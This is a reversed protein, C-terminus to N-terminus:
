KLKTGKIIKFVIVGLLALCSGLILTELIKM